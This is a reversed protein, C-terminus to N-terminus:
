LNIFPITSLISIISSNTSINIIDFISSVIPLIKVKKLLLFNGLKNVESNHSIIKEVKLKYKYEFFPIFYKKIPFFKDLIM